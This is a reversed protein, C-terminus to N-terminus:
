LTPIEVERVRVSSLGGTAELRLELRGRLDRDSDDLVVFCIFSSGSM